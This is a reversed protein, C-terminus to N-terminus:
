VREIDIAKCHVYTDRILSFHTDCVSNRQPEYQIMSVQSLGAVEIIRLGFTVEKRAERACDFWDCKDPANQPM